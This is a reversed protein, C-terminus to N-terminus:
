ELATLLWGSNQNKANKTFKFVDTFASPITVSGSVVIDNEKTFRIQKSIVKVTVNSIDSEHKMFIIETKEIKVLQVTQGPFTKRQLKILTDIETLLSPECFSKLDEVSGSNFSNILELTATEVADFFDKISFIKLPYTNCIERYAAEFESNILALNPTIQDEVDEKKVNKLDKKSELFNIPFASEKVDSTIDKMQGPNTSPAPNNRVRTEDERGLISRLKWLLFLSVLAFIIIDFM